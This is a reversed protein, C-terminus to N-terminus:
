FVRARLKDEHTNQTRNDLRNMVGHTAESADAWLGFLSLGALTMVYTTPEPIASISSSYTGLSSSRYIHITEGFGSRPAVSVVDGGLYHTIQLLTYTQQERWWFEFSSLTTAPDDTFQATRDLRSPDNGIEQLVGDIVLQVPTDSSRTSWDTITFTISPLNLDYSPGDDGRVPSDFSNVYHVTNSYSAYKTEIAFAPSAFISLPAATALLIASVSRM